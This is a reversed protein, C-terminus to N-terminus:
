YYIYDNDEKRQRFKTPRQSEREVTGQEGLDLDDQLRKTVTDLDLQITVDKGEEASIKDELNAEKMLREITTLDEWSRENAQLGVWEVLVQKAIKERQKIQRYAIVKSPCVISHGESALLPM